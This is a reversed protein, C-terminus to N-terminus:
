INREVYEKNNLSKKVSDDELKITESRRKKM